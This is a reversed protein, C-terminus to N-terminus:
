HNKFSLIRVIGALDKVPPQPEFGRDIFLTTIDNKMGEGIELLIQGDDQLFNASNRAITAYSDLGQKGSFLALHPEHKTVEPTMTTKLNEAIYPPNSVIVNFTQQTPALAQFWHSEVFQVHNVISQPLLKEANHRAIALANQSVDVATIEFCHDAQALLLALTIAICGSGTGLDLIKVPTKKAPVISTKIAQLTKEVLLETEPRPILVDPSVKFDCGYFNAQGILYQIPVRQETRRKLLTALQQHQTTTMKENTSLSWLKEATLNLCHNFLLLVETAAQQTNSCYPQLVTECYRKADIFKFPLTSM